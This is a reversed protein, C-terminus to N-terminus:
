GQFSSSDSIRMRTPSNEMKKSTMEWKWGKKGGNKATFNGHKKSVAMGKVVWFAERRGRPMPGFHGRWCHPRLESGWHRPQKARPPCIWHAHRNTSSRSVEVIQHFCGSKTWCFSRNYWGHFWGLNRTLDRFIGSKLSIKGACLRIGRAWALSHTKHPTMRIQPNEDAFSSSEYCDWVNKMGELVHHIFSRRSMKPAQVAILNQIELLQVAPVSSGLSKGQRRIPVAGFDGNQTGLLM